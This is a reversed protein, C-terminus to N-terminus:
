NVKCQLNGPYVDKHQNVYPDTQPFGSIKTAMDNIYPIVVAAIELPVKEYFIEPTPVFHEQYVFATLLKIVTGVLKEFLSKKEDETVQLHKTADRLAPMYQKVIFDADEQGILKYALYSIIQQTAFYPFILNVINTVICSFTIFYDLPLDM